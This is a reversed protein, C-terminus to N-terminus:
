YLVIAFFNKQSNSEIIIGFKLSMKRNNQVGVHRGWWTLAVGLIHNHKQIWATLLTYWTHEITGSSWHFLSSQQTQSTNLNRGPWYINKNYPLVLGLCIGTSQNTRERDMSVTWDTYKQKPAFGAFEFIQLWSLSFFLIFITMRWM